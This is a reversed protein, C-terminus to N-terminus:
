YHKKQDAAVHAADVAQATMLEVPGPLVSPNLGKPWNRSAPKTTTVPGQLAGGVAIRHM